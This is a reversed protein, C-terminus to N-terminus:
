EPTGGVAPRSDPAPVSEPTPAAGLAQEVLRRATRDAETELLAWVPKAWGWGRSAQAFTRHFAPDYTLDKM